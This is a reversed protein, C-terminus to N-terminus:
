IECVASSRVIYGVNRLYGHVCGTIEQFGNDRSSPRMQEDNQSLWRFSLM